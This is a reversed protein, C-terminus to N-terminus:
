CLIIPFSVSFSAVLLWWSNASASQSYYTERESSRGGYFNATSGINTSCESVTSLVLVRYMVPPLHGTICRSSVPSLLNKFEVVVLVGGGRTSEAAYNSVPHLQGWCVLYQTGSNRSPMHSSFTSYLLLSDPWLCFLLFHDCYWFGWRVSANKVIDPTIKFHGLLSFSDALVVYSM